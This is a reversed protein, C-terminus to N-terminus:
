KMKRWLWTVFQLAAAYATMLLVYVIMLIAIDAWTM